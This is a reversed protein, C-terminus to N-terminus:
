RFFNRFSEADTCRIEVVLNNAFGQAQRRDETAWPRVWWRRKRRKRRKIVEYIILGAVIACNKRYKKGLRGMIM